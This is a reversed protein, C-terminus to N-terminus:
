HGRSFLRHSGPVWETPPAPQAMKAALRATRRAVLPAGPNRPRAILGHDVGDNGVFRGYVTGDEQIGFLQTLQSRPVDIFQVTTGDFVFGVLGVNGAIVGGDTLGVLHTSDVEPIAIFTFTQTAISYYFATSTGGFDTARGLASGHNDLAILATHEAGPAEVTTYVGSAPHYVFGRYRQDVSSLFDGVVIGANNIAIAETQIPFPQGPAPRPVRLRRFTGENYTWGEINGIGPPVFFGTIVRSANIAQPVTLLLPEFHRPRPRVFGQMHGAADTYVGVPIGDPTIGTVVTSHAGPFLVDVQRYTFGAM